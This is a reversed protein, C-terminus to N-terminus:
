AEECCGDGGLVVNSNIKPKRGEEEDKFSAGRLCLHTNQENTHCECRSSHRNCLLCATMFIKLHIFSNYEKFNPQYM